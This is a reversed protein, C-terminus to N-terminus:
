AYVDGADALSDFEEKVKDIKDKKVKLKKEELKISEKIEKVLAGYNAFKSKLYVFEPRSVNDTLVRFYDGEEVVSIIKM